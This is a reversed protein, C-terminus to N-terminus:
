ITEQSEPATTEIAEDIVPLKPPAFAPVDVIGIKGADVLGQNFSDITVAILEGPALHFGSSLTVPYPALGVVMSTTQNNKM